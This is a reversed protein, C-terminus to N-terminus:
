LLGGNRLRQAHDELEDLSCLAEAELAQGMLHKRPDFTSGDLRVYLDVDRRPAALTKPTVWIVTSPTPWGNHRCGTYVDRKEPASVLRTLDEPDITLPKPFTALFLM